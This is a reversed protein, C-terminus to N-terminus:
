RFTFSQARSHSLPKDCSMACLFMSLEAYGEMMKTGNEDMANMTAQSPPLFPVIDLHYEYSTQNVQMNYAKAFASDGAKASAFTVVETVNPLDADGNVLIAAISAMAGGKSHGTLYIKTSNMTNVDFMELMTSKIPDWLSKVARYFGAHVRGPIGPM